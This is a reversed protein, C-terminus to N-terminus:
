QIEAKFELDGNSEPYDLFLYEDTEPDITKLMKPNNNQKENFDRAFGEAGKRDAFLKSAVIERIRAEYDTQIIIVRNM